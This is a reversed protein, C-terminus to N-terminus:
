AKLSTTITTKIGPFKIADIIKKVCAQDTASAKDVFTTTAKGAADVEIKIRLTKVSKLCKGMQLRKDFVLRAPDPSGPPPAAEATAAGGGSAEDLPGMDATASPAM